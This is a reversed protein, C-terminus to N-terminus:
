HSKLLELAIITPLYNRTKLEKLVHRLFIGNLCTLVFMGQLKSGSYNLSSLDTVRARSFSTHPLLILLVVLNSNLTACGCLVLYLSFSFFFFFTWKVEGTENKKRLIAKAIWTRKHKWLFQSIIQGLETFPVVPIKIPIANFRYIAKSLISM